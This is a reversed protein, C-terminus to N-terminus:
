FREYHIKGEDYESDKHPAPEKLAYGIPMLCQVFIHEPIDLLKKVTPEASGEPDGANAVQVWCSALGQNVAELHIHEAVVSSDEKLRRGKNTDFCVVIVVPAGKVFKSSHTIMSLADKTAQDKVVIFEWPRTGRANPSFMASMFIERLKEEEVEKKQFARVSRRKRIVDLMAFAEKAHITLKKGATKL